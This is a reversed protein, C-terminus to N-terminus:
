QKKNRKGAPPNKEDRVLGFYELRSRAPQKQRTSSAAESKQKQEYSLIAYYRQLFPANEDKRGNGVKGVNGVKKGAKEIDGDNASIAEMYQVFQEKEIPEIIFKDPTQSLSFLLDWSPMKRKDMEEKFQEFVYLGVGDFKYQFAEYDYWQKAEKKDSIANKKAVFTDRKEGFSHCIGQSLGNLMIQQKNGPSFTPRFICGLVTGLFRGVYKPAPIPSITELQFGNFQDMSEINAFEAKRHQKMRNMFYDQVKESSPTIIDVIAMYLCLHQLPEYKADPRRKCDRCTAHICNNDNKTPAKDLFRVGLLLSYDNLENKSLYEADNHLTQALQTYKAVDLEIGNKFFAHVVKDGRAIGMFDYERYMSKEPTKAKTYKSQKQNYQVASGPSFTGKIDFKLLKEPDIGYFTNNLVLFQLEKLKIVKVNDEELKAYLKIKFSLHIRNMLSNEGNNRVYEVYKDLVQEMNSLEDHKENLSKVIYKSDKTIYFVGGSGGRDVLPLFESLSERLAEDTIGFKNNILEFLKEAQVQVRFEHAGEPDTWVSQEETENAESSKKEGLYKRLSTSLAEINIKHMEADTALVEALKMPKASSSSSSADTSSIPKVNQQKRPNNGVGNAIGLLAVIISLLIIM